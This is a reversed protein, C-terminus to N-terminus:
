QEDEWMAPYGCANYFRIRDFQDSSKAFYDALDLAIASIALEDGVKSNKLINAIAVYDRKMM